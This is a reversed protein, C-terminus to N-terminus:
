KRNEKAQDLGSDHEEVEVEIYHGDNRTLTAWQRGHVYQSIRLALDKSKNLFGIPVFVQVRDKSPQDQLLVQIGEPINELLKTPLKELEMTFLYKM